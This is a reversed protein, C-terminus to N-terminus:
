SKGGADFPHLEYFMKLYDYYGFSRAWSTDRIWNFAKPDRFLELFKNYFKKENESHGTDTGDPFQVMMIPVMGAFKTRPDEIDGTNMMMFLATKAQQAEDSLTGILSSAVNPIENLLWSANEVSKKSFAIILKHVIERPNDDSLILEVLKDIDTDVM